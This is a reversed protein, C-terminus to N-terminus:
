SRSGEAADTRPSPPRTQIPVADVTGDDRNLIQCDPDSVSHGVEGPRVVSTSVKVSPVPPPEIDDDDRRPGPSSPVPPKVPVQSSGEGAVKASINQTAAALGVVLGGVYGIFIIKWDFEVFSNSGSYHQDGNSEPPQHRTRDDCKKMLQIGCLAMNGEFSNVGFTSFQETENFFLTLETLEPPIKGSLNNLSLDLAELNSLNGLSSPIDRIFMNNSLNLLVLSKLEGMAVPIEVSIRNCSIDSAVRSYFQQLASTYDMVVGKNSMSFPYIIRSFWDKGAYYLTWEENQLKRNSSAMMSKWNRVTESTLKGSCMNHSLDLVHLKPFPCTTPCDIAGDFENYCLAIIDLEPLTGLWFAFSDNIQKYSVDLVQLMRCNVM